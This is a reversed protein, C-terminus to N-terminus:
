INSHKCNRAKKPRPRGRSWPPDSRRVRKVRPASTWLDASGFGVMNPGNQPKPGGGEFYIARLLYIPNPPQGRDVKLSLHTPDHVKAILKPFIVREGWWRCDEGKPMPERSTSADVKRSKQSKDLPQCSSSYRCLGAQSSTRQTPRARFGGLPRIRLTM